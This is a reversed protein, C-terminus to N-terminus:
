HACGCTSGCGGGGNMYAENSAAPGSRQHGAGVVALAQYVRQVHRSGCATCVVPGEDSMSRRIDFVDDCKKCTYTYAPMREGPNYQHGGIYVSIVGRMKMGHYGVNGDSPYVM